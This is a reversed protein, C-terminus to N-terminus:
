VDVDENWTEDLESETLTQSTHIAHKMIAYEERNPHKRISAWGYPDKLGIQESVYANYAQLESKNNSKYYM